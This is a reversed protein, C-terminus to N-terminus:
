PVHASYGNQDFDMRDVDRIPAPPGTCEFPAKLPQAPPRLLNTEIPLSFGYSYELPLSLPFRAPDPPSEQPGNHCQGLIELPRRCHSHCRRGEQPPSFYESSKM